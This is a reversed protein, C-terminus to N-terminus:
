FHLFCKGSLISILSKLFNMTFRWIEVFGNKGERRPDLYINFARVHIEVTRIVVRYLLYLTNDFYICHESFVINLFGLFTSAFAEEAHKCWISTEAIM